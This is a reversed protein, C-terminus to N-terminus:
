WSMETMEVMVRNNRELSSHMLWHWCSKVDIVEGDGDIGISSTPCKFYKKNSKALHTSQKNTTNTQKNHKNYTLSNMEKWRWIMYSPCLHKLEEGALINPWCSWCGGKEVSGLWAFAQTSTSNARIVFTWSSFTLNRCCAVMSSLWLPAEDVFSFSITPLTTSTTQNSETQSLVSTATEDILWDM